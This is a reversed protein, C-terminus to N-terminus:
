NKENTFFVLFLISVLFIFGWTILLTINSPMKDIVMVINMLTTFIVIDALIIKFNTYANRKSRTKKKPM